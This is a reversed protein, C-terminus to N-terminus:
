SAILHPVFRRIWDRNSHFCAARAAAFIERKNTRVHRLQSQRIMSLITSSHYIGSANRRNWPAAAYLLDRSLAAQACAAENGDRAFRPLYALGKARFYKNAPCM